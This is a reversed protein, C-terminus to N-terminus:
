TPEGEVILVADLIIDDGHKPFSAGLKGKIFDIIAVVRARSDDFDIDSAKNKLESSPNLCGISSLFRIGPHIIIGSRDGTDKDSVLIGPRPRTKGPKYHRTSYHAADQIALRYPEEKAEIRVHKSRGKSSNDGPGGCEAMQGSLGNIPAGNWYCIYDGVTRPHPVGSRGEQRIRKLHLCFGQTPIM